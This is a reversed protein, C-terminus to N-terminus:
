RMGGGTGPLFRYYVELMLINLCTRYHANGVFTTAVGRIKEGGGPAKWSGDENQNKLLQDRFLNNYFEWDRGGRNIMVQVEYYHGYLDSFETNYDFKTNDRIYSAARRVSASSERGLMQLSLAGGGTMTFYGTQGASSNPGSYGFGGNRNQMNEFYKVADRKAGNIGKLELGTHEAAKLAQVHWAAISTDGGRNGSIDYNYDWGGSRAHQNDIIFQASKQAVEMLNPVNISLMKCFTAAEAIAYAAISHEYPWHKNALNTSLKGDNKMGIDVLYTIARLCSDGYKESIPTECRGLYALLALGTMATQNSNTWSGNANQTAKLWELGKEVAVECEPTGGSEALRMLRDEKTCRKRMTAPIAAFGGGLGSDGDGWGSGFGDGDGFEATPTIVEIEPVPISTPSQTNAAIVKTLSSSPASPKRQIQTNVRRQDLETDENLSAQYTVIVPVTKDVNPLLFIGLLLAILALALVAIAISSITSTRRQANLRELAEESLQAHISM